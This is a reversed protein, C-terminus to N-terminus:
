QIGEEEQVVRSLLSHSNKLLSFSLGWEESNLEFSMNRTVCEGLNKSLVFLGVRYPKCSIPITNKKTCDNGVDGSKYLFSLSLFFQPNGM